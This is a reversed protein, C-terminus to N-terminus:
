CKPSNLLTITFKVTGGLLAINAPPRQAMFIVFKVAPALLLCKCYVYLALSVPTHLSQFFVVQSSYSIGRSCKEDLKLSITRTEKNLARKSSM